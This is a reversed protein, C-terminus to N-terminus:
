SVTITGLTVDYSPSSTEGDMYIYYTGTGPFTYSFSGSHTEGKNWCRPDYDAKATVTKLVTGSSNKIKIDASYGGCIYTSAGNVVTWNFTATLGSATATARVVNNGYKSGYTVICSGGSMARYSSSCSTKYEAAVWYGMYGSFSVSISKKYVNVTCGKSNGANDYLTITGTTTEGSSWTNSYSSSRCGSGGSDSCAVSITRNGTTWTTSAGSVTGCTPATKDIKVIGADSAASKNGAADIAVVYVRNNRQASWTGTVSSATSGSNWDNRLTSDTDYYYKIASMGSGGTDSATASINVTGNTWSNNKSNSVGTITPATKDIKVTQNAPCAKSNGANDYVTGPSVTTSNTNWSITYSANGTCGSGGTDSCTGTLTRNGNTWSANGGSSTCSPATKDIKVTQNASCNATNGANDSVTGGSNNDVAGATTTNINSSYTKSFPATKCGSGGTDSCTATVTRSTNTWSTSGGSVSCTPATKDIKVTQNAACTTENGAKDKVKGGNNNDVAGATSINMATSYKKSFDATDCGSDSDSCKATVTRSTNTWSTSGGSVSCTPPTKDVYVKASRSPCTKENGANDRVTYSSITSTKTTESFVKSSGSYSVHCGSHSDSCGWSITRNGNTWNTSDGNNTCSPATKDVYVSVRCDTTNGAEDSITIVGYDATTKFTKTYTERKCGSGDGDDCGVTVKRNTNIWTDRPQEDVSAIICTPAKTDAIDKSVTVTKTNGYINAATIVLKVKGPTYDTLPINLTVSSKYGKVTVSGTNKVEKSGRYIIYSYSMLKDNGIISVNATATSKEEDVNIVANIEPTLSNMRDESTYGPCELYAVYSYDSQSYKYVQVYSKSLDCDKDSYDKIPQIYKNDVLISLPVKKKQGIAKPLAARNQQVYSQGALSLNEEATDYHEKKGNEIIKTVSVIAIGTLIGLITIAALIEILTFGKYQKKKRKKKPM